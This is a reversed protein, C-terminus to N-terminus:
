VSIGWARAQLKYRYLNDELYFLENKLAERAIPTLTFILEIKIKRIDEEYDNIITVINNKNLM